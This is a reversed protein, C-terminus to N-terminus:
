YSNAFIIKSVLELKTLGTIKLYCRLFNKGNLYEDEAYLHMVGEKKAGSFVEDVTDIFNNHKIKAM